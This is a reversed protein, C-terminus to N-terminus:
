CPNRGCHSPRWRPYICTSGLFLLKRVGHVHAAHIVNTEIVLNDRIFEAPYTDNALIGGVRAAALFVYRPKAEEFFRNVAHQDCLDLQERGRTVIDRFGAAELARVVASGVMGRHGAVFVRAWLDSGFEVPATGGATSSCYSVAENM